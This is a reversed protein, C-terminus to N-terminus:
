EPEHVQITNTITITIEVGLGFLSQAFQVMLGSQAFQVTLGATPGNYSTIFYAPTGYPILTIPTGPPTPM